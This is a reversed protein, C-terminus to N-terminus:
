QVISKFHVKNHAFKLFENLFHSKTPTVEAIYLKKYNNEDSSGVVSDKFLKQFDSKNLNGYFKGAKLFSQKYRQHCM